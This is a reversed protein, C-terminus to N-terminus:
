ILNKKLIKVDRVICGRMTEKTFIEKKIFKIFFERVFKKHREETTRIFDDYSINLVKWVYKWKEAMENTYKQIEKVGLKKAATVTKQSNEDLGTLFFVKDNNIRHWRALIDAAITTYAHGITAVDNVYYIPTTIYFKKM